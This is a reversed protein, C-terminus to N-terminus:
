HAADYEEFLLAAEDERGMDELLVGMNNISTLTDPHRDGLTARCGDLAERYLPEADYPRGMDELLMGMNNILVSTGREEAPM